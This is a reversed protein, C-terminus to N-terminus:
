QLNGYMSNCVRARNTAATIPFCKKACSEFQKQFTQEALTGACEMHCLRQKDSPLYSLADELVLRYYKQQFAGKNPDIGNAHLQGRMYGLRRVNLLILENHLRELENRTAEKMGALNPKSELTDVQVRNLEYVQKAYCYSLLDRRDSSAIPSENAQSLSPLHTLLLHAFTLTSIVVGFKRKVRVKPPYMDM